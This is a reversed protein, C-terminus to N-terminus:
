EEFPNKKGQSNWLHIVINMVPVLYEDEVSANQSM